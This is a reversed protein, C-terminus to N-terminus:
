PTDGLNAYNTSVTTTTEVWYQLPEGAEMPYSFEAAAETETNSAASSEAGKSEAAATTTAATEGGGCGALSATMAATMALAIGRKVQKKM